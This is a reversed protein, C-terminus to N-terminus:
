VHTDRLRAVAGMRRDRDRQRLAAEGAIDLRAFVGALPEGVVMDHAGPTGARRDTDRTLQPLMKAQRQGGLAARQLDNREGLVGRSAVHQLRESQRDAGRLFRMASGEPRLRIAKARLISAGALAVTARSQLKGYPEREGTASRPSRCMMGSNCRAAVWPWPVGRLEQPVFRRPLTM